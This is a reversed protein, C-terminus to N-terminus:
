REDHLKKKVDVIPTQDYVDVETVEIKNGSVGTVTIESIAVPNPRMPSRTSFVGHLGRSRDGRPYVKYIDRQAKHLWFLVVLTQGVKIDDMAEVYKPYIELTGSEESIDFNRPTHERDTLGCRMVGVPTINIEDQRTM